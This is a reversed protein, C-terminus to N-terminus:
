VILYRAGELSDESDPEAASSLGNVLALATLPANYRKAVSWLTDDSAPFCIVYEGRRRTTEGGMSVRSLATVDQAQTMRLMLCLEADIGIREGDMRARCSVAQMCGQFTPDPLAAGNSVDRDEFSYRFPLSIESAGYEGEKQWVLHVRCDGSLHFKGKDRHLEKPTATATVDVVRATSPLNVESLPLSDSLTFNKNLCQLAQEVRYTTYSGWTTRRTTYADKTYLTPRDHQAMAELTVGLETHLRGESIEVSLESCAGHACTQWDPSVGDMDITQAFPLKRQAVSVTPVAESANEDHALTIKLLVEGRCTINDQGALAENVVVQGEACIVRLTDAEGPSLIMDDQLPLTDGVGRALKVCPITHTLSEMPTNDPSVNSVGAPCSAYVKLKADLRCKINLRRPATVRGSVAEPSIHCFCTPEDGMWGSLNGEPSAGEEKASPTLPTSLRYETNLPACYLMDDNGTYLVFYDMSGSMDVTDGSAYTVPPLVSAGIRLLRKIEPQYDPLSFDGSVDQTLTKDCIPLMFTKGAMAPNEPRNM